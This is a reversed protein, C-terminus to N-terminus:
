IKVLLLALNQCNPIEARGVIICRGGPIAGDVGEVRFSLFVQSYPNLPPELLDPAPSFESKPPPPPRPPPIGGGETIPARTGGEGWGLFNQTKHTKQHGRLDSSNWM